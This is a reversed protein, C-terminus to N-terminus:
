ASSSSCRWETTCRRCIEGYRDLLVALDRASPPLRPRKDPVVAGSILPFGPVIVLILALAQLAIGSSQFSPIKLSAARWRLTWPTRWGLAMIWDVTIAILIAYMLDAVFM